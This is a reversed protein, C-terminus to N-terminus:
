ENAMNEIQEAREWGTRWSDVNVKDKYPCDTLTKGEHYAQYGEEEVDEFPNEVDLDNM